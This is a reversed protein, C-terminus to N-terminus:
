RSRPAFAPPIPENPRTELWLKLLYSRMVKPADESTIIDKQDPLSFWVNSRSYALFYGGEDRGITVRPPAPNYRELGDHSDCTSFIIHQMSQGARFYKDLSEEVGTRIVSLM